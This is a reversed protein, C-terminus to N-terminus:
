SSIIEHIYDIDNSSAEIFPIQLDTCYGKAIIISQKQQNELEDLNRLPRDRSKDKQRRLLINEATDLIFIFRSPSIEKFIEYPVKIVTKDNDILIHADFLVNQKTDFCLLEEKLQEILLYQNSLIRNKDARRLSDRDINEIRKKILTGASFHTYNNSKGMLAEIVYTKGVGSLGAIVTINHQKSM